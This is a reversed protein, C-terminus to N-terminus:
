HSTWIGSKNKKSAVMTRSHHRTTLTHLFYHLGQHAKGDKCDKQRNLFWDSIKHHHGTTTRQKQPLIFFLLPWTYLEKCFFYIKLKM